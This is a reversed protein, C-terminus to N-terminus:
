FSDTDDDPPTRAYYPDPAFEERNVRETGTAPRSPAQVFEEAELGWVSKDEQWADVPFLRDRWKLDLVWLALFCGGIILPMPVPGDPLVLDVGVPATYRGLYTLGFFAPLTLWSLAPRFMLVPLLWLTMGSTLSPSVYLIAAIAMLLAAYRRDRRGGAWRDSPRQQQIWTAVVVGLVVCVGAAKAILPALSEGARILWVGALALGTSSNAGIVSDAGLRVMGEFLSPGTGHWFRSVSGEFYHEVPIPIVLFPALPLAVLVGFLLFGRFGLRRAFPLALVALIPRFSAAVAIPLAMAIRWGKAIAWILFAIAPLAFVDPSVVAYTEHLVVPSWAYLMILGTPKKLEVLALLLFFIALADAIFNLFVRGMRPNERYYEAAAATWHSAPARDSRLDPLAVEVARPGASETMIARAVIFREGKKADMHDPPEANRSLDSVSFEYPNLGVQVQRAEIQIRAADVIPVESQPAIMVILRAALAVGLVLGLRPPTRYCSIWAGIQLLSVGLLTTVFLVIHEEWAASAPDPASNGFFHFLCGAFGLLSVAAAFIVFRHFWTGAM